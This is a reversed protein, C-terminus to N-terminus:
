ETKTLKKIRRKRHYTIAFRHAEDRIKLLTQSVNKPLLDLSLSNKSFQSYLKAKTKSRNEKAIAISPIFIDRVSKLQGKGGDVLILNPEKWEKHELRRKIIEKLAEVDNQKKVSKIKFLRYEKRKAKNNEFVVMSGSILSSSIHSIDYCEIRSSKDQYIKLMEIITKIIKEYRKKSIKRKCMGPCLSLDFYMCPKKPLTRCTRYPLIKRLNNLYTKLEKGSVFPGIKIDGPKIQHTIRIRESIEVWFYNKDDQWEINYRPHYKKILQQELILAEKENETLLYDTEKVKESPLFEERKSFHSAIRKKLNKAKGIYLINKDNDKFIYVGPKDPFEKKM